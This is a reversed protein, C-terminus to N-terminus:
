VLLTDAADEVAAEDDETLPVCRSPPLHVYVAENARLRLRPPCKARIVQGEVAIEYDVAEGLFQGLQVEGRFVNASAEPPEPQVVVDEPRIVVTATAGVAPAHETVYDLPGIPSGMRVTRDGPIVTVTGTFLNTSGIFSAVFETRPRHYIDRPRGEQVIRGRHMVGIRNSMSLAEVQDHTVFLTTVGLRRQILRLERRMRSRLQADLNSLPEDLLLVSPERVIARALALRQQQGGSLQTSMRREEDALGVLALAREVAERIEKSGRRPKGVRLPFAVNEFVSMHPWVAYSQFVMGIDRQHTPVISRDSVVVTDGLTIQGSRPKELGAICRLTTTKGCGSPGLLTYFRGQEVQFSAHDVAVVERRRDGYTAVLDEVLIM